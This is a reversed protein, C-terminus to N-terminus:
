LRNIVWLRALYLLRSIAHANTMWCAEDSCPHMATVRRWSSDATTERKNVALVTSLQKRPKKSEQQILQEIAHGWGGGWFIVFIFYIFIFFWIFLM